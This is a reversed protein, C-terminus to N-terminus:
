SPPADWRGITFGVRAADNICDDLWRRAAAHQPAAANVAYILRNADVLIL